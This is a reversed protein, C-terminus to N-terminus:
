RQRNNGDWLAGYSKGERKGLPTICQGYAEPKKKEKIFTQFLLMVGTAAYCSTETGRGGKSSTFGIEAKRLEDYVKKEKKKRKKTPHLPEGSTAGPTAGSTAGSAAGSSAARRAGQQQAFHCDALYRTFSPYAHRRRCSRKM